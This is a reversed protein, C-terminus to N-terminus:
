PRVAEFVDDFNQAIFAATITPIVAFWANLTAADLHTLGAQGTFDADVFALPAGAAGGSDRKRRLADLAYLVDMFAPALQTAQRAIGRRKEIQDIAM